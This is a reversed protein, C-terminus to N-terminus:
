ASILRSQRMTRGLTRGIAAASSINRFEARANRLRDLRLDAPLARAMATSREDTTPRSYISWGALWGNLNGTSSNLAHCKDM